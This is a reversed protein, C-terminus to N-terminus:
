FADEIKQRIEQYLPAYQPDYLRVYLPDYRPDDPSLPNDGTIAHAIRDLDVHLLPIGRKEAIVKFKRCTRTKGACSEGTVGYFYRGQRAQEAHIDAMSAM